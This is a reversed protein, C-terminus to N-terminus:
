YSYSQSKLIICTTILIWIKEGGMQSPPQPQHPNQTSLVRDASGQQIPFDCYSFLRPLFTGSPKWYETESWPSVPKYCRLLQITLCQKSRRGLDKRTPNKGHRTPFYDTPPVLCWLVASCEEPEEAGLATRCLVESGFGFSLLAIVVKSLLFIKTKAFRSFNKISYWHQYLTEAIRM